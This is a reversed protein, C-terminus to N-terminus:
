NLSNNKGSCMAFVDNCNKNVNYSVSQRLNESGTVIIVLLIGDANSFHAEPLESKKVPM